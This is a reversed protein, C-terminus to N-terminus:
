QANEGGAPCEGVRHGIAKTEFTGRMAGEGGTMTSTYAYNQADYQGNMTMSMQGHGDKGGCTITGHITGGGFSFHSYDCSSNKEKDQMMNVPRAAEEPTICDRRTTKHGKMAAVYAPPLNTGTVNAEVSVEWLGPQITAAGSPAATPASGGGTGGGAANQQGSKNCAALALVLTGAILMKGNM